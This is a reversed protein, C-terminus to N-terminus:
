SRVDEVSVVRFTRVEDDHERIAVYDGPRFTHTQFRYGTEDDDADGLLDYHFAWAGGPKRVLHGHEEEGGWFRQVRCRDRAGKFVTPDIHGDASLPAVFAYGHHRSGDPFGPNRALELRIAKLSM